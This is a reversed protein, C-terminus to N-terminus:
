HIIFSFSQSKAGQRREALTMTSSVHWDRAVKRIRSRTCIISFSQLSILEFWIGVTYYISTQSYLFVPLFWVVNILCPERPSIYNHHNRGNQKQYSQLKYKTTVPVSSTVCFLRLSSWSTFTYMIFARPLELNKVSHKLLSKRFIGYYNPQGELIPMHMTETERPTQM